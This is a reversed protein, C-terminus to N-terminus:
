GSQPFVPTNARSHNRYQFKHAIAKWGIDRGLDKPPVHIFDPMREIALWLAMDATVGQVRFWEGHSHRYRLLSHVAKEAWVAEYKALWHTRYTSLRLPSHSNLEQLRSKPNISIGVKCRMFEGSGGTFIYLHWWVMSDKMQSCWVPMSDSHRSKHPEGNATTAVNAGTGTTQMREGSLCVSSNSPNEELGHLSSHTLSELESEAQRPEFGLGGAM